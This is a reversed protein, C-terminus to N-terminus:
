NCYVIKLFVFYKLIIFNMNIYLLISFKHFNIIFINFAAFWITVNLNKVLLM